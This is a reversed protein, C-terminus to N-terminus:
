QVQVATLSGWQNAIVESAFKGSAEDGSYFCEEYLTTDSQTTIYYGNLPLTVAASPPLSALAQPAGNQLPSNPNTSTALHCFVTTPIKTDINIFSQQGSILYTGPNALFVATILANSANLPLQIYNPQANYSLALVGGAKGAPGQAGTPGTPGTAGKPGTAGAPGAPGQPGVAGYTLDLQGAVGQSNTVTLTYTGATTGTPLTAVIAANTFSDVVLKVGNFSVTPATTAPEFGSGALTVRNTSTSITGSLIAPTVTTTAASASFATLLLSLIFMWVALLSSNSKM